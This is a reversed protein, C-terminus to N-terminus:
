PSGPKVPQLKLASEVQEPRHLQPGLTEATLLDDEVRWALFREIGPSGAYYGDPHYALWNEEITGNRQEPFTFLTVLHRGTATNWVNTTGYSGGSIVLQGDASFVISQTRKLHGYLQRLPKGTRADWLQIWKGGTAVIAGDPSLAMPRGTNALESIKCKLAGTRVDWIRVAKTSAMNVSSACTALTEGDRSLAVCTILRDRTIAADPASETGLTQM